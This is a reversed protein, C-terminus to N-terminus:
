QVLPLEGLTMSHGTDLTWHGWHGTDPTWPGPDPDLTHTGLVTLCVWVVCPNYMHIYM